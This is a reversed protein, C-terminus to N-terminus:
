QYVPSGVRASCSNVTAPPLIVIIEPPKRGTHSYIAWLRTGCLGQASSVFQFSSKPIRRQPPRDCPPRIKPRRSCARTSRSRHNPSPDVTSPRQAVSVCSGQSCFSWDTVSHKKAPSFERSFRIPAKIPLIQPTNTAIATANSEATTREGGTTEASPPVEFISAASASSFMRPLESRCERALWLTCHEVRLPNASRTAGRRQSNVYPVICVNTADIFHFRHPPLLATPRPRIKYKSWGSDLPRTM